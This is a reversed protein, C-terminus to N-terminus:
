LVRATDAEIVRLYLVNSRYARWVDDPITVSRSKPFHGAATDFSPLPSAEILLGDRDVVIENAANPQVTERPREISKIFQATAAGGWKALYQMESKAYEAAAAASAAASQNYIHRCCAEPVYAIGGRLRRQFDIEEFYLHFREDFGGIRDFAKTRIAMIAGSVADVETTESLSWFAIRKRIRQRDRSRNWRPFRSAIAADFADATTHLESPPLIWTFADDWFLAPGAVDAGSAILLDIAGPGFVVDANAAILVESDCKARARNVAAGYGLNTDPTILIDAHASLAAAEGSNDVVIVQLPARTNARASRIAEIALPASRYNVIVLSAGAM